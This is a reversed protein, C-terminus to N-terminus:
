DPDAQKQGARRSAPRELGFDVQPMRAQVREMAARMEGPALGAGRVEFSTSWNCGLAQEERWIPKFVHVGRHSADFKRAEAELAAQVEDRSAKM